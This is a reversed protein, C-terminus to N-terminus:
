PAHVLEKGVHPVELQFPNPVHLVLLEERERDQTENQDGDGHEDAATQGPIRDPTLQPLPLWHRSLGNGALRRKRIRVPVLALQQFLRSRLQARAVDANRM